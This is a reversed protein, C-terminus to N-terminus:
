SPLSDRFGLWEVAKVLRLHEIHGTFVINWAAVILTENKGQSIAM